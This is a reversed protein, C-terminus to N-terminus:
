IKTRNFIKNKYDRGLMLTINVSDEIELSRNNHDTFWLEDSQFEASTTKLMTLSNPSITILQGFQKNPVFTLFVKSARQYTNNVLNCYGLVVEVSQLKPVDEGGKDKDVDKKACELWKMTEPFLLELKCGIKIEIVIKNKIKNLYIQVSPNDAITEHKKLLM